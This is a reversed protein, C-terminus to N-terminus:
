NQHMETRFTGHDVANYIVHIKELPIGLHQSIDGKILASDTIVIDSKKVFDIKEEYWARNAPGSLYQQPYILPIVDHLTSCILSTTPLIKVSTCAPDM